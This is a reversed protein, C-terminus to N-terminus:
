TRPERTLIRLAADIGLFYTDIGAGLLVCRAASATVSEIGRAFHNTMHVEVVPLTIGLVCDRIAQGSYSFGGPNMVVCDVSGREAAYLMDIAEGEANTYRIDLALGKGNAYAHLMADLDAATTSGYKEPERKGLWNMNAGQLLLITTM